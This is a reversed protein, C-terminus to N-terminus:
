WLFPITTVLGNASPKNKVHKLHLLFIKLSVLQNDVAEKDRQGSPIQPQFCKAKMHITKVKTSSNENLHPRRLQTRFM